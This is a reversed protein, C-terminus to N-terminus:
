DEVWMEQAANKVSELGSFLCPKAPDKQKQLEMKKDRGASNGWVESSGETRVVPAPVWHRSTMSENLIQLQM